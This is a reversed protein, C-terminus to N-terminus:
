RVSSRENALWNEFESAGAIAFGEMFEGAILEAGAQWQGGEAFRELQDLDLIVVEPLLRVLGGSTEVSADGLYRRLVRIAENLSHRAASEPKDAWLLGVLHERSRGRPSRALYILLALHKRWLLESPAPGGDYGLGGPGLTQCSIM